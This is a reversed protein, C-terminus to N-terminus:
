RAARQARHATTQPVDTGSIELLDFACLSVEKDYDRSHLLAFSPMGKSDYVIGEGAKAEAPPGNRAM